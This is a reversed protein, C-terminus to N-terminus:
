PPPARVRSSFKRRSPQPRGPRGTRQLASNGPRSLRVNAWPARWPRLSLRVDAWPARWPRLSLRVNARPAGTTDGHAGGTASHAGTTNGLAWCQVWSQEQKAARSRASPKTRGGRAPLAAARQRASRRAGGFPRNPMSWSGGFHHDPNM